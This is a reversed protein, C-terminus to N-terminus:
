LYLFMCLSKETDTMNNRAKFKISQLDSNEAIHDM